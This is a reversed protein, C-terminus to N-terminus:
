LHTIKSSKFDVKKLYSVYVSLLTVVGGPNIESSPPWDPSNTPNETIEIKFTNTENIV